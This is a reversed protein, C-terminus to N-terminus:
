EENYDGLYVKALTVDNFTEPNTCDITKISYDTFKVKRIGESYLALNYESCEIGPTEAPIYCSSYRIGEPYQKEIIACLENTLNYYEENQNLLAFKYPLKIEEKADMLCQKLSSIDDVTVTGFRKELYDFLAQNKEGRAPAILFANLVTAALTHLHNNFDFSLFGGVTIDETCIFEGLAYKKPYHQHTELVCIMESSGLYLVEKGKQNIRGQNRYPSPEWEIPNSFDIEDKFDRIRFLKTGKKITSSGFDFSFGIRDLFVYNVILEFLNEITWLVNYKEKSIEKKDGNNVALQLKILARELAKNREL